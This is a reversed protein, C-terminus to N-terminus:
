ANTSQLRFQEILELANEPSIGAFPAFGGEFGSIRKSLKRSKNFGQFGESFQFVIMREGAISAISFSGFNSWEYHTTRFFHRMKIGRDSLIVYNSNPLLQYAFVFLLTLMLIVFFWAFRFGFLALALSPITGMTCGAVATWWQNKKCHLTVPSSTTM